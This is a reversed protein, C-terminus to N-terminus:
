FVDVRVEFYIGKGQLDRGGGVGRRIPEAWTLEAHLRDRVDVSVGIGASSVTEVPSDLRQNWAHAFDAFPFIEVRAPAESERAVPIRLEMSAILGNDRVLLNRSIGRVSQPGGVSIQESSLLPDDALQLDVRSRITWDDAWDPAGRDVDFRFLHRVQGLWSVFEGDAFGPEIEETAGLVDLGVNLTSRFLWTSSPQRLILEQRARLAAVTPRCDFQDGRFCTSRGSITSRWHTWSGLLSVSLDVSRRRLVRHGLEVEFSESLGEIDLTRFVSEVIESQSRQFSARFFGGAAGLPTEFTLRWQELGESARFSGSIKEGLGVFNSFSADAGGGPTGLASPQDNAFVLSLDSSGAEVVVLKLDSEGPRLGPLLSAHVREIRPDRQFEALQDSLRHINLPTGGAYRLRREFYDSRFAEHGEVLIRGLRGEVIQLSLVGGAFDQDPLVAYSSVFGAEHYLREVAAVVRALDSTDLDRSLFPELAGRFAEAGFVSSGFVDIAGVRVTLGEPGPSAADPVDVETEVSDDRDSVDPAPAELTQESPRVALQAWGGLPVSLGMILAFLGVGSRARRARLGGRPEILRISM